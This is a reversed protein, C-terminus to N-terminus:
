RLGYGLTYSFLSLTLPARKTKDSESKLDKKTM